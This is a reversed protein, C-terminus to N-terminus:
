PWVLTETDLALIIGQCSSNRYSWPCPSCLMRVSAGMRAPDGAIDPAKKLTWLIEPLLLGGGAVFVYM